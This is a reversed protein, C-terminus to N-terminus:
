IHGIDFINNHRSTLRYMQGHITDAVFEPDDSCEVKRLLHLYSYNRRKKPIFVIPSDWETQAPEIDDMALMRNIQQKEFERAKTAARYRPSNMPINDTMEGEIKSSGQELRIFTGTECAKM